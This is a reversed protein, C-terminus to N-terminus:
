PLAAPRLAFLAFELESKNPDVHRTLFSNNQEAAALPDVLPSLAAGVIPLM